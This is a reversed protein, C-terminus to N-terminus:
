STFYSDRDFTVQLTVPKGSRSVVLTLTDGKRVDLLLNTLKYRRTIQVTKGRITASVFTDGVDLGGMIAASGNDVSRVVVKESQYLKGTTEDYVSRSEETAVGVGLKASKLNGNNAMCNNVVSLATNVPIAYGFGLVGDQESRANVIGILEGATNFLGGGSNGHNVSADTRIELMSVEASGDITEMDVYEADVSVVGQVASIGKNEPNGVAYVSEGATLEDSNGLKASMAASEAIVEANTHTGGDSETVRTEGKVKLLAIDHTMSGGCYQASLAHDATRGGYLYLDIETCVRRTTTNYVVHYNTIVYMDGSNEDLSVIVGSGASGTTSTIHAVVSVSSRFASQLDPAINLSQLFEYYTGSFSGDSKAEEWMRWYLTSGTEQGALWAGETGEYGQQLAIDYPYNDDAKGADSFMGCGSATLAIGLLLAASIGFFSRKKM